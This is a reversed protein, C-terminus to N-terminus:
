HSRTHIQVKTVQFRLLAAQQERQMLANWFQHRFPVMNKTLARLVDDLSSRECLSQSESM